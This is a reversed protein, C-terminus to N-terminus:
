FLEQQTEELQGKLSPNVHTAYINANVLEQMAIAVIAADIDARRDAEPKYLDDIKDRCIERIRQVDPESNYQPKDIKM